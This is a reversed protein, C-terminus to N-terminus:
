SSRSTRLKTEYKQQGRNLPGVNPARRVVRGKEIVLRLLWPRRIRLLMTAITYVSGTPRGQDAREGGRTDCPPPSERLNKPSYVYAVQRWTFRTIRSCACNSSTRDDRTILFIGRWESLLPICPMKPSLSRACLSQIQVLLGLRNVVQVKPASTSLLGDLELLCSLRDDRNREKQERFRM